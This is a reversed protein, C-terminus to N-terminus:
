LEVGVVMEREEMQKVKTCSELDRYKRLRQIKQEGMLEVKCTCAATEYLHLKSM